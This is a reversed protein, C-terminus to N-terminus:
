LRAVPHAGGKQARIDSRITPHLRARAVQHDSGRRKRDDGRRKDPHQTEPFDVTDPLLTRKPDNELTGGATQALAAPHVEVPNPDSLYLGELQVM